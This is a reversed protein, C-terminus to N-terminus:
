KSISQKLSMFIAIFSALLAIPAPISDYGREIITSGIHVIIFISLLWNLINIKFYKRKMMFIHNM